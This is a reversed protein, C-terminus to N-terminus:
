NTGIIISLIAFTDMFWHVMFLSTLRRMKTYILIWFLLLPIFSLLRWILYKLDPQFTIFIHQLTFFALVILVTATKNNIKHELRPFIYGNYTIEEMASNILPFILTFLIIIVLPIGFFPLMKESPYREYLAFGSIISSSVAIIISLLIFIFGWLLDKKIKAPQFNILSQMKVKEKKIAKNIVLFCISNAFLGYVPWWPSAKIFVNDAGILYFILATLLFGLGYTITRLSLFFGINIFRM